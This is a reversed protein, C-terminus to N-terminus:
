PLDGEIAIIFSIPLYPMMNDHPRMAGEVSINGAIMAENGSDTSYQAVTSVAWVADSPNNTTGPASSAHVAHTHEPLEFRSLVVSEAGGYGGLSYEKGFDGWGQHVPVRGRSDPLAFTSQGDGGFTTGIVSYLASYDNIKLLQGECFLWGVPAFKGGFMRVEGVVQDSM